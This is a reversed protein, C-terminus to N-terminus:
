NRNKGVPCSSVCLGCRKGANVVFLYHACKEKDIVWGTRPSFNDQGGKLAGAPCRSICEGCQSCHNVPESQSYKLEAATLVSALRVRPGAGNALFLNNAGFGGLGCLVASHKHSFDGKLRSYDGIDAEPNLGMSPHGKSELLRAIKHSAQALIQNVVNFELMYQNRSAPLHDLAANNLRYSFTVVSRAGPLIDQPRRGEPAGAYDKAPACGLSHLGLSMALYGLESNLDM